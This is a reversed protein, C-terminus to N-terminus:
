QLEVLVGAAGRVDASAIVATELVKEVAALVDTEWNGLDM